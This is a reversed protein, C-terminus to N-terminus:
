RTPPIRRKTKPKTKTKLTSKKKVINQKASKAKKAAQATKSIKASKVPKTPRVVKATKVTKTANKMKAPKAKALKSPKTSKAAKASKVAKSPKGTKSSKVPKVVKSTKPAPKVVKKRPTLAHPMPKRTRPAPAPVLLVANSVYVEQGASPQNIVKGNVVLTTSSGGDLSMAEMAGFRRMQLALDPLTLGVSFNMQRGDVVVILPNGDKDIGVATRPGRYVVDPRFEEEVQTVMLQGNKLLRPGAGLITHYNQWNTPTTAVRWSAAEGVEAKELYARQEDAAVLVWGGEPATVAGDDAIGQVKGGRVVLAVQGNKLVYSKGFEPTLLTLANAAPFGNLSDIPFSRDTGLRVFPIGHLSDIKVKGNRDIGFATRNKWPLRLWRNNLKVAGVAAGEFAFYGGNVAVPAKLPAVIKSVPARKMVGPAAPAVQYRWLHSKSRVVYMRVPGDPMQLALRTLTLGAALKVTSPTPLPTPPATGAAIPTAKQAHAPGQFLASLSLGAILMM